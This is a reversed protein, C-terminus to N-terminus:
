SRAESTSSRQFKKAQFSCGLERLRSQTALRHITKGAGLDLDPSTFEVAHNTWIEM